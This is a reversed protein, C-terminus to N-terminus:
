IPLRVGPQPPTFSLDHALFVGVMKAIVRWHHNGYDLKRDDGGSRDSILVYRWLQMLQGIFIPLAIMFWYQLTAHM